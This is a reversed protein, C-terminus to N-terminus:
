EVRETTSSSLSGSKVVFGLLSVSYPYTATVKVDAGHAWTSVVSPFVKSQDLNQASNKVAASVKSVRLPDQSSVAAVRAGARTADTLTIYDHFLIGMQIVGFLVVCLIPLVLTFEVMTQGKENRSSFKRSMWNAAKQNLQPSYRHQESSPAPARRTLPGRALYRM